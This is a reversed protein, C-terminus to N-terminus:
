KLFERSIKRFRDTAAKHLWEFAVMERTVIEAGGQRMRRLACEADAPRRSSVADAVVFVRKDLELLDLVTQLVCVHAEVGCVVIQERGLELLAERCDPEAGCSFHTKELVEADEVLRRVEEVTPGIGKPYQESVRVPVDLERAVGILWACNAIVREGESIAPVLRAQVDVVLLASREARLLM